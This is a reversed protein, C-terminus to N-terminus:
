RSGGTRCPSRMSGTGGGAATDTDALLYSAAVQLGPLVPLGSPLLAEQLGVIVDLAAQYRRQVEAAAREASRARLVRDTVNIVQVLVGRVSGDPRRRPHLEFDFYREELRDEGVDLHVRWETAFLPEGSAYVSEAMEFLNQGEMGPLGDRMAVGIFEERGLAARYTANVAVWRLDAGEMAALGVPMEEFAARVEAAEGTRRALVAEDEQASGEWAM